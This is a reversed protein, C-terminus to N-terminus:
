GCANVCRASILASVCTIRASSRRVSRGPYPPAEPDLALRGPDPARRTTGASARGCRRSCATRSITTAVPPSARMSPRRSCRRRSARTSRQSRPGADRAPTPWGGRSGKSIPRGTSRPPRSTWSGRRRRREGAAVARRDRGPGPRLPLVRRRGPARDRRGSLAGRGRRERARPRQARRRLRGDPRVRDRQAGDERFPRRRETRLAPVRARGDVARRGPGRHAARRRLGPRAVRLDARAARLDGARGGGDPLVRARARVGRREHRLRRSPDRARGPAVRARHRRPLVHQRRRDRRRGARSHEALEAITSSTIGGAPLMVWVARPAELAAVLAELSAAGIAGEAQARGGCGPEPRLGVCRHGDRMLRRVLNSGMRGLGVMGLQMPRDTTM